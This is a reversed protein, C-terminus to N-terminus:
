SSPSELEDEFGMLRAVDEHSRGRVQGAAIERELRRFREHLETRRELIEEVENQIPDVPNTAM